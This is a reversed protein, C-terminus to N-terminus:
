DDYIHFVLDFHFCNDSLFKELSYGLTKYNKEQNLFEEKEKPKDLWQQVIFKKIKSISKSATIIRKSNRSQLIFIKKM